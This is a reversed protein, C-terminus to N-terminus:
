LKFKEKKINLKKNSLQLDNFSYTRSFPCGLRNFVHNCGFKGVYVVHAPVGTDLDMMKYEQGSSLVLNDNERM